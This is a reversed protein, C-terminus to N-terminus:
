GAAAQKGASSPVEALSLIAETVIRLGVDDPSNRRRILAVTLAMPPDLPRAALGEGCVIAEEPVLAVGFGASVMQKIVSINDIEMAGEVDLGAARLWDRALQRYNSRQRTLILPRRALDAPTVVDPIDADSAPMIAVMKMDRIVTTEFLKEDVPLGTVGLDVTDRLMRETIEGTNGTSVALDLDPHEARLKQLVPMLLYALTAPGSALHVRGLGGGGKLRRMAAMAQNTSDFIVRAHEILERGADTAYARKGVRKVLPADFRNELERIQLSVAPQTLNLRRAAASFGGLEVVEVLARLQDLNLSRM